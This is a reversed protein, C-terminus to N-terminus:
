IHKAPQQYDVFSKLGAARVEGSRSILNKKFLVM